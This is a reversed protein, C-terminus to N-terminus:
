SQPILQLYIQYNQWEFLKTLSLIVDYWPAGWQQHICALTSHKCYHMQYLLIAGLAGSFVVHLIQIMGHFGSFLAPM